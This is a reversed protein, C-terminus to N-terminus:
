EQMAYQRKSYFIHSMRKEMATAFSVSPRPYAQQRGDTLKAVTTFFVLYLISEILFLYGGPYNSSAKRIFTLSMFM